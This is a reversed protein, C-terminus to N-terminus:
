FTIDADSLTLEECMLRTEPIESQPRRTPSSRTVFCAWHLEIHRVPVVVIRAPSFIGPRRPIYRCRKKEREGEGPTPIILQRYICTVQATSTRKLVQSYSRQTINIENCSRLQLYKYSTSYRPWTPPVGTENDSSEPNFDRYRFSFPM